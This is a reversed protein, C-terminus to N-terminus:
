DRYFSPQCHAAQVVSDPVGVMWSPRDRGDDGGGSCVDSGMVLPRWREDALHMVVVNTGAGPYLVEATAYGRECALVGRRTLQYRSPQGGASGSAEDAAGLVDARGPCSASPSASPTRSQATATHSPAAAAGHRPSDAQGCAALLLAAGATM